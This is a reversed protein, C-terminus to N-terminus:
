ATLEPNRPYARHAIEHATRSHGVVVRRVTFRVRRGTGGDDGPAGPQGWEVCATGSLHLTEGTRFGIFLLAAEPNVALNGFSNFMNNGPYDPWWLQDGEVRVFGPPGGRHSTDTGRGPHETGLFFTDANRILEADAATLASGARAQVGGTEPEAAPRGADAELVRQQIYQPCNGFAQDVDFSLRGGSAETLTGNLRFRRRTAFEVTILGARQGPPLGHLPDGPPIAATVRLTTPSTVALFGAPGTLPTAWLRGAADRATLVAFTREALFAALGGRLEAPALMPTLRAAEAEVGARRQMALEGAHFGSVSARGESRM